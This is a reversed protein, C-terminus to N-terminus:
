LEYGDGVRGVDGCCCGDVVADFRVPGMLTRVAFDTVERFYMPDLSMM